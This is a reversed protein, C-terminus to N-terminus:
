WGSTMRAGAIRFIRLAADTAQISALQPAAAATSPVQAAATTSVLTLAAVALARSIMQQVDRRQM